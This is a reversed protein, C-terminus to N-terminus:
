QNQIPTGSLAWRHRAMLARCAISTRSSHNKIAQSEDLIVRYFHARHLWDRNADWYKIWYELKQSSEEIDQPIVCYPYSRVVEGYTTIIVDSHEMETEAGKGSYKFGSGGHHRTIRKFVNEDVHHQFESEWQSLLSNPCVILTCKPLDPDSQRNAVMAAIAQITKGLGMEDALIGGRIDNEALERMKMSAAGQVQHHYLASKMGKFSWNGKNDPVTRRSGLMKIASLIDIKDSKAQKFDELPICAILKTLFEKKNKESVVPLVTKDLNANSDEYVNSTALSGINSVRGTKTRKASLDPAKKNKKPRGGRKRKNKEGAKEAIAKAAKKEHKVQDRLLIAEIGAMMNFRKERLHEKRWEANRKKRAEADLSYGKLEKQKPQHTPLEGLAEILAHDTHDDEDYGAALAHIQAASLGDDSEEAEDSDEAERLLCKVRETERRSAREMEIDDAMTNRRVKKKANYIEKLKRYAESPDVDDDDVVVEHHMWEFGDNHLTPAPRRKSGLFEVPPAPTAATGPPRFINGAGARGQMAKRAYAQQVERMKEPPVRPTRDIKGRLKALGAPTTVDFRADKMGEWRDLPVLKPEKKLPVLTGDDLEIADVDDDDDGLIITGKQKLGWGPGDPKPEKKVVPEESELDIVHGRNNNVHTIEVDDQDETLDVTEGNHFKQGDVEIKIDNIAKSPRFADPEDDDVIHSRRAIDPRALLEKAPETQPVNDDLQMNDDPNAEMNTDENAVMSKFAEDIDEPAFGEFHMLPDHMGDHETNQPTSAVSGTDEDNSNVRSADWDM